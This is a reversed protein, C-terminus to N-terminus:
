LHLCSKEIKQIKLQNKPLNIFKKKADRYSPESITGNILQGNPKQAVFRVEIM